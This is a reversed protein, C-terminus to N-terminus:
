QEDLTLLFAVLDAIEQLSLEAAFTPRMVDPAFGPAIFANPAIISEYLYDAVSAAEGTYEPQQLTVASRTAIDALAPGLLVVGPALSHCTICGTQPRSGLLTRRFLTEGRSADGAPLPQQISPPTPTPAPTSTEGCASLCLLLGVLITVGKQM